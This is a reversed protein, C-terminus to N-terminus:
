GREYWANISYTSMLLLFIIMAYWIPVIGSFSGVVIPAASMAMAVAASQFAYFLGIGAFVGIVSLWMSYWLADPLQLGAPPKLFGLGILNSREAEMVSPDNGGYWRGIIDATEREYIGTSAQTSIEVSSINVSFNSQDRDFYYYLIHETGTGSIDAVTGSYNPNVYSAATSDKPNFGYTAVRSLSSTGTMIDIFRVTYFKLYNSHTLSSATDQTAGMVLNQGNSTALAGAQTCKNGTRVRLSNTETVSLEANPKVKFLIYKNSNTPTIEISCSDTDSFGKVLQGGGNPSDDILELKYGISLTEDYKELITGNIQPLSTNINELEIFIEFAPKNFDNASSSNLVQLYDSGSFYIGQNRTIDNAGMLTRISRGVTQGSVPLDDVTLWWSAANTNTGTAFLQQENQLSSQYPYLSWGFEDIYKNNEIWTKFPVPSILVPQYTLNTSGTNRITTDFRYCFDTTSVANIKCWDIKDSTIYLIGMLAVMSGIFLGSIPKPIERRKLRFKKIFTKSHDM